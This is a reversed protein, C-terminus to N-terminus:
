HSLFSTDPSILLSSSLVCSRYALFSKGLVLTLSLFQFFYTCNHTFLGMRLSLWRLSFPHFLAYFSQYIFMNHIVYTEKKMQNTMYKLHYSYPIYNTMHLNLVDYLVHTCAVSIPLFIISSSIVHFSMGRRRLSATSWSRQFLIHKLM